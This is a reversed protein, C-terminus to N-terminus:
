RSLNLKTLALVLTGQSGVPAFNNTSVVLIGSDDSPPQSYVNQDILGGFSRFDIHSDCDKAITWLPVPALTGVSITVDFWAFGYWMQDIRFTPRTNPRPPNLDSPSFFPVNILDGSGDSLFNVRVVVTSEGEVVKFTTVQPAPM